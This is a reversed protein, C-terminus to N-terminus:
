RPSPQATVSVSATGGEAIQVRKALPRLQELYKVDLPLLGPSLDTVATVLYDGPPLWDIAVPEDSVLRLQIRRSGPFMLAPDEPFAIAYTSPRDEGGKDVTVVVRSNRDTFTLVVESITTNDRFEVAADTVDRGAISVSKLTWGAPPNYGIRRPGSEIGHVSFTGDSRPTATLIRGPEGSGVEIKVREPHFPASANSSVVRGTLTAGETLVLTVGELDATGVTVPVSVSLDGPRTDRMSDASWGSRARLEYQGPIVDSVTFSGDRISGVSAVGVTEPDALRHLAISGSPLPQGAANTATGRISFWSVVPLTLDASSIEQNPALTLRNAASIDLVGPSFVQARRRGDLVTAFLVYEGPEIGFIRYEGRDNTQDSPQQAGPAYPGRFIAVTVYPVPEGTHDFVRGTVVGARSMLIEIERTRGNAAEIWRGPKGPGAQGFEAPLYLGRKMASVTYRGPPLDVFLFRGDTDTEVRRTDLVGATPKLTVQAGAIPKGGDLALVRGSIRGTGTELGPLAVREQATAATGIWWLLCLVAIM